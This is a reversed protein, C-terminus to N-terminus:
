AFVEEKKLKRRLVKGVNSKPLESYFEIQKPVKYATLRQRCFMKLDDKSLTDNERVVFIKVVEGRKEDRVGVAAVEKVLPHDSIVAEIESPYVNFGSVIILDKKRDVLKVYGEKTIYGLDGTKFYGDSTMAEATEKPKKWYGQMLQPGSICIEGILGCDLHEGDKDIIKLGTSPIPLGVYGNYDKLAVPSICVVPSSESLGYGEILPSGTIERWKKSVSRDLSMGGAMTFNLGSFDVKAFKPSDVLAKFLTNVGTFKTFKYRMLERIFGRRDRPNTILLNHGGISSVLFCNVTLSFIHYLPIATVITEAGEKLVAGAWERVQLINAILNGHTLEAGKTRGTTGGTYQLLALDSRYIQPFCIDSQVKSTVIERLSWAGNIHWRPVMKMVNKVMFNVLYSKPRKLFDGVETTIVNKISTDSIVSQLLHASNEVVIITEAESDILQEKLERATYLPNINVVVLGARLIGFLCIPYQLLNPMMIAVRDGKKLALDELLFCAFKRSLLEIRKYDITTGMNTFAPADPFTGFSYEILEMVSCYESVDISTRVGKPYSKHWFNSM